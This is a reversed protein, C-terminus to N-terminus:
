PAEQLPFVHELGPTLATPDVLEAVKKLQIRKQSNRFDYKDFVTAPVVYYNGSWQGGPALEWGMFVGPIGNPGM